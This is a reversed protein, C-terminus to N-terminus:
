LCGRISGDPNMALCSGGRTVMRLFTMVVSFAKRHNPDELYEMIAAERHFLALFGATFLMIFHSLFSAM